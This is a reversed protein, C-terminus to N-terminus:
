GTFFFWILGETCVSLCGTVKNYPHSSTEFSLPPTVFCIQPDISEVEAVDHAQLKDQGFSFPRFM